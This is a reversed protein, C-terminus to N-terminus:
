RFTKETASYRLETASRQGRLTLAPTGAHQQSARVVLLREGPFRLTLVFATSFVSADEPVGLASWSQPEGYGAAQAAHAVLTSLTEHPYPGAPLELHAHRVVDGRPVAAMAGFSFLSLGGATAAAFERRTLQM